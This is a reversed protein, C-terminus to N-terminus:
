FSVMFAAIEQHKQRLGVVDGALEMGHGSGSDLGGDSNVDKSCVCM